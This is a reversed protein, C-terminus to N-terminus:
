TLRGITRAVTGPYTRGAAATYASRLEDLVKGPETALRAPVTQLFPIGHAAYRANRGLTRRYDEPSTTTSLTSIWALGVDPWWADPTAILRGAADLM